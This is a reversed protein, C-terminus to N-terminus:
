KKKQAYALWSTILAAGLGFGSYAAINKSVVFGVSFFYIISLIVSATFTHLPQGDIVKLTRYTTAGVSLAGAM